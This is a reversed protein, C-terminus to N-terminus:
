VELLIEEPASAFFDALPIGDPGVMIVKTKPYRRRFAALGSKKGSRGSKVELAWVNAGAAVVFDM